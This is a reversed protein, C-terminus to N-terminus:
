SGIYSPNTLTQRTAIVDNKQAYTGGANVAAFSSYTPGVTTISPSPQVTIRASTTGVATIYVGPNLAYKDGSRPFIGTFDHWNYSSEAPTGISAFVESRSGTSVWTQSGSATTTSTTEFLTSGSISGTRTEYRLAEYDFVRITTSGPWAVPAMRHSNGWASVPWAATGPSIGLALAGHSADPMTSGMVAVRQPYEHLGVFKVGLGAIYELPLSVQTYFTAAGSGGDSSASTTAFDDAWEDGAFSTSGTFYSSSSSTRLVPVAATVSETTYSIQDTKAFIGLWDFLVIVNPSRKGVVSPVPGFAEATSSYTMTISGGTATPTTNQSYTSTTQPFTSGNGGYPLVTTGSSVGQTGYVTETFSSSELATDSADKVVALFSQYDTGNVVAPLATLSTCSSAIDPVAGLGIRTVHWIVEGPDAVFGHATRIFGEAPNLVVEATTTALVERTSETTTTVAATTTTESQFPVAATRTSSGSGLTQPTTTWFATWIPSTEWGDDTESTATTATAECTESSIMTTPNAVTAPSYSPGSATHSSSGSDSTTYNWAWQSLTHSYETVWGSSWTSLPHTFDQFSWSYGSSSYSEFNDQSATAAPDTGPYVTRRTASESSTSTYSASQSSFYSTLNKTTSGVFTSSFSFSSMGHAFITAQSASADPTHNDHWTNTQLRSASSSYSSSSVVTQPTAPASHTTYFSYEIV